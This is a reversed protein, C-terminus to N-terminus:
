KSGNGLLMDNIVQMLAHALNVGTYSLESIDCFDLTMEHMEWDEIWHAIIGLFAKTNASTWCDLTISLKSHESLKKKVLNQITEFEKLVIRAITDASPIRLDPQVTHLLLQFSREEVTIFPQYSTVIFNAILQYFSSASLNKSSIM